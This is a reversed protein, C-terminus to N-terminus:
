IVLKTQLKRHEEPLRPIEQKFLLTKEQTPSDELSLGLLIWPKPNLTETPDIRLIHFHTTLFVANCKGLARKANQM